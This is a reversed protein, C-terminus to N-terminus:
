RVFQKRLEPDTAFHCEVFHDGDVTIKVPRTRCIEKAFFCRPEFLCGEPPNLLNSPAGEISMLKTKPGRLSPFSGLLGMTYPHRPDHFLSVSNAFEAIRGGYMVAVKECTEAIVSIDHSVVMMAINQRSQMAKIERLIQDQVVVDLATVPEDAIILDPDCALSMAIIARQRMGGSFEHPYNNMRSATLGVLEFLSAVKKRAEQKSMGQHVELVEVIQDGVKFVPNLANMANQFIMSIRKWRVHRMEEESLSALNKGDLLIRGGVIKANEPLLRLITYMLSTKGCGSEGVLGLTEGRDIAFSIGDVAKVWGGGLQYHMRVEDLDLLVM